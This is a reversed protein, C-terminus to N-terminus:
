PLGADAGEGADRVEAQVERSLHFHDLSPDSEFGYGTVVDHRRTVRVFADSVIKQRDNLWRLSDTEMRFGSETMIRVHGRAELDNRRQDVLGRDAFLTSYKAGESDFFEIRVTRADILNRDTYMAAYSAWLTWIKRGESTETLTFDRAEQDPVRLEAGDPVSPAKGQCGWLATSLLM